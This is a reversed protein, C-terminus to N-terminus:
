IATGESSSLQAYRLARKRDFVDKATEIEVAEVKHTVFQGDEGM